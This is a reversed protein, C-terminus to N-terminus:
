SEAKRDCNVEMQPCLSADRPLTWVATESYCAHSTVRSSAQGHLQTFLACRPRTINGSNRSARPRSSLDRVKTLTGTGLPRLVERPM